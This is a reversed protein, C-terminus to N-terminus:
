VSFSNANINEADACFDMSAYTRFKKGTALSILAYNKADKYNPISTRNAIRNSAPSCGIGGGKFYIILCAGGNPGCFNSSAVTVVESVPNQGIYGRAAFLASSNIVLLILLGIKVALKM